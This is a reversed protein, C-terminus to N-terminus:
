RHKQLSMGVLQRFLGGRSYSDKNPLSWRPSATSFITKIKPNTKNQKGWKIRKAYFNRRRRKKETEEGKKEREREKKKAENRKKKM